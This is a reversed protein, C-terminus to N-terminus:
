YQGGGRSNAFLQIVLDFEVRSLVDPTVRITHWGRTINGSSDKSLYDILDLDSITSGFTGIATNDVSLTLVQATTGSYIGYTIEHTHDPVSFSHQHAPISISHSHSPISVSHSHSPIDVTHTHSPHIHKGSAWFSVYGSVSAGDSTIALQTGSPIGHNHNAGGEGGTDSSDWVTNSSALTTGDSTATSSGGSGSTTSSGGGSATSSYSGGGSGTTSASAGGGKTAKTYGRFAAANGNLLIQNIHVVNNPVYFRLEASYQPSCNDYFHTTFLTVAGQSYAESIRQRDALDAITTAVDASKNAITIKADAPNGVVDNKTISIIRTIIDIDLEDDVVRVYDGVNRDLLEKTHVSDVDYTLSPTKLEDMMKVAADYLSQAHQYRQDIWIKTIIGHENITDADIYKKGNNVSEITLQNTGEGYGLPYLRTCLNTADETKTIGLMNKRYRIEAKVDTPAKKLSVTWPFSTTEFEWCYDDSFPSPISFLASLLNENEWGYLFQHSFECTGLQWRKETQRELVYRLVENTYVGLNGIEHWGLLIDDMLTAIVHECDYVIENTSEGKTIRKPIIRFLGIYKDQDYLEVYNFLKCHKNKPDGLPLTFQATWLANNELTYGINYANELFAVRKNTKHDFVSLYHM